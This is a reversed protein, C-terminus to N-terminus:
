KDYRKFNGAKDFKMDVGNSLEISYGKRVKEIGVIRNGPQATAVYKTIAKPVFFSPVSSQNSVEVDEWNGNRDFSIETGDTLVVEYDDVRGLTKDIKIVSVKSKFNNKLTTKAATPLVNVDHSYTKAAMAVSSVGLIVMLTLFLKKMSLNHILPYFYNKGQHTYLCLVQCTIKNSKISIFINYIVKLELKLVYIDRIM